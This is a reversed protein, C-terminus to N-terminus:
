DRHVYIDDMGWVRAVFDYRKSEMLNRIREDGFISESNNEVVVIRPRNTDLDLGDLAEFEYGEVDISLIGISRFDRERLLEALSVVSVTRNRRRVETAKRSAGKVSSFMDLAAGDSELEEFEVVGRARGVATIVLEATPRVDEWSKKHISLADIALVRFGFFREFCYSNSHQTPHNCGVDVFTKPFDREGIIKGFFRSLV